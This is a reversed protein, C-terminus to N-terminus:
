PQTVRQQTWDANYAIGFPAYGSVWNPELVNPAGLCARQNFWCHDATPDMGDVSALEGRGVRYWGSGNPGDCSNGTTCGLGTVRNQAARSNNMGDGQANVLRIRDRALKAGGGDGSFGTLWAARHRADYNRARLALSAGQSHGWTAIGLNCDVRPLACAQALLSKPRSKDYLCTLKIGTPSLSNEYDVSLAYFGREALAKTVTVGAAADYHASEDWPLVRSGMFWLFLPHKAESAADPEFGITKFRKGCSWSWPNSGMYTPPEAIARASYRVAAQSPPPALVALM